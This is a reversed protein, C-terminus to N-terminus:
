FSRFSPWGQSDRLSSVSVSFINEPVQLPSTARSSSFQDVVGSANSSDGHFFNSAQSSFSHRSSVPRSSEFPWYPFVTFPAFSSLTSLHLAWYARRSISFFAPLVRQIYFIEKIAPLGPAFDVLLVENITEEFVQSLSPLVLRCCILDLWYIFLSSIMLLCM